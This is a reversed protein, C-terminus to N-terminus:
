ASARSVPLSAIYADADAKLIDEYASQAGTISALFVDRPMAFSYVTEAGDVSSAKLVIKVLNKAPLPAFEAPLDILLCAM